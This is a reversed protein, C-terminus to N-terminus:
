HLREVDQRMAFIPLLNFNSYNVVGVTGITTPIGTTNVGGCFPVIGFQSSGGHLVGLDGSYAQVGQMYRQAQFASPVNVAGASQNVLGIWYNVGASFVPSSSWRATGLTLWRVGAILSNRTAFSETTASSSALFSNVLSLQTSNARTYVGGRVAWSYSATSQTSTFGGGNILFEMTNATINGALTDGFPSLWLSATLGGLNNDVLQSGQGGNLYWNLTPLAATVEVGRGEADNSVAVGWQIGGGDKFNIKSVQFGGTTTINATVRMMATARISSGNFDFVVNNVSASAAGATIATGNSFVVTADTQTSGSAAIGLIGGGAAAAVSATITSANLGFSVGNSNSFVLASLNGSAGGASFNISAAARITAGNADTSAAFGVNNTNTFVLASVNASSAGASANLAFSATIRSSGSMGFSVNNSNSFVLTGVTMSQTGASVARPASYNATAIVQTGFGLLSSQAIGFDIGNSASLVLRTAVFSNASDGYHQFATANMTSGSLSFVVNGSSARSTFASYFTDLGFNVTGSTITGGFQAGIGSIVGGGGGAAVSAIVTAANAATSLSWTVNSANSFALSRVSSVVNGGIHSVLGFQQQYSATVQTSGSMGFSFDNSNSFVLTGSTATQTGAAIGGIFTQASQAAVSAIVTAAGAATSLSWTVNSANSFALRTASSVANGGIHSIVAVSQDNVSGLLTAAGAATSLSFTLGSANSFALRTASLVSNGGVHSLLGLDQLVSATVQSSGSMGWTVGNSDAFALTGSVMSQTGATVARPASYSFSLQPIVGFGAFTNSLITWAAGGGDVLSVFQAPVNRTGAIFGITAAGLITNGSFRWQINNRSFSSNFFTGLEMLAATGSTISSGTAATISQLQSNALTVLSFARINAITTALSVGGSAVGAIFGVQIEDGDTFPNPHSSEVPTVGLDWYAGQDTMSTLNFRIFRGPDSQHQLTVVGLPSTASGQMISLWPITSIRRQNLESVRITTSTNQTASDLRLFGSTPDANVVSPSFIYGLPNASPSNEKAKLYIENNKSRLAKVVPFLERNLYDVLNSGSPEGTFPRIAQQVGIRTSFGASIQAPTLQRDTCVM